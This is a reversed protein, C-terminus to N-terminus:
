RVTDTITCSTERGIQTGYLESLHSSIDRGTMGGAYLGLVKEGLGAL